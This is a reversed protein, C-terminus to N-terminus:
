IIAIGAIAFLFYSPFRPSAIYGGEVNRCILALAQIHIRFGPKAGISQADYLVGPVLSSLLNGVDRNHRDQMMAKYTRALGESHQQTYIPCGRRAVDIISHHVSSGAYYGGRVM